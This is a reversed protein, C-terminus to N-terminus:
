NARKKSKRGCLQRARHHPLDDMPVVKNDGKASAWMASNRGGCLIVSDISLEKM